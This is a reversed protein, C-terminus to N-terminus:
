GAGYRSARLAGVSAMFIGFAHGTNADANFRCNPLPAYHFAWQIGSRTYEVAIHGSRLHAEHLM